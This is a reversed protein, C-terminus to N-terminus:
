SLLDNMQAVSMGTARAMENLHDVWNQASGNMIDDLSTHKNGISQIFKEGKFVKAKGCCVGAAENKEMFEIQTKIKGPLWYDDGACDM